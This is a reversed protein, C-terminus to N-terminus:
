LRFEIGRWAVDDSENTRSQLIECKKHSKSDLELCVFNFADLCVILTLSSFFENTLYNVMRIFSWTCNYWTEERWWNSSTLEIKIKGNSHSEGTNVLPPLELSTVFFKMTEQKNKEKKEKEWENVWESRFSM